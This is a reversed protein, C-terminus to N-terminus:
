VDFSYPLLLEQGVAIDKTACLIPITHIWYVQVNSAQGSNQNSNVYKLLNSEESTDFDYGVFGGEDMTFCFAPNYSRLRPKIVGSGAIISMGKPFPRLAKVGKGNPDVVDQDTVELWDELNVDAGNTKSTYGRECALYDNKLEEDCNIWEPSTKDQCALLIVEWDREHEKVLEAFSVHEDDAIMKKIEYQAAKAASRVPPSSCFSVTRKRKTPVMAKPESMTRLTTVAANQEQLDKLAALELRLSKNEQQLRLYEQQIGALHATFQAM